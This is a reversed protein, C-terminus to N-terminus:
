MPMQKKLAKIAIFSGGEGCKKIEFTLNKLDEGYLTEVCEKVTFKEEELLAIIEDKSFFKADKYFTSNKRNKEYLKGLSSNKDIFGIVLIGNRQLIRYIERLAKREDNVFCITTVLLALDFFNNKLPLNEATGKITRIGRKQALFSMKNSPEVIERIGLAVAFRGSGGGIEIGNKFSPLISKIAEIEADYIKKHDDFWKDYKKYNKEFIEIKNM